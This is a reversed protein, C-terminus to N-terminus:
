LSRGFWMDRFDLQGLVDILDQIAGMANDPAPAEDPALLRPEETRPRAQRAKPRTEPMEPPPPMEPADADPKMKDGGFGAQRGRCSQSPPDIERRGAPPISTRQAPTM